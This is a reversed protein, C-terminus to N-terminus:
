PLSLAPVAQIDEIQEFNIVVEENVTVDTALDDM